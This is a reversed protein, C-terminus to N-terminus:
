PTLTEPQHGEPIKESPELPFANKKIIRGRLDLKGSFGILKRVVNEVHFFDGSNKVRDIDIRFQSQPVLCNEFQKIRRRDAAAFEAIKREVVNLFFVSRDRYFGAFPVFVADHRDAFNGHAVDLLKEFVSPLVKGVRISKWPQEHSVPPRLHLIAIDRRDDLFVRFPGPEFPIRRRMHNAVRSRRMHKTVASRDAHNLFHEPM